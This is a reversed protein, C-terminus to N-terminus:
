KKGFPYRQLTKRWYQVAQHERMKKRRPDYPGALTNWVATIKVRAATGALRVLSGPINTYKTTFRGFSHDPRSTGFPTPMPDSYTTTSFHFANRQAHVQHRCFNSQLRFNWISQMERATPRLYISISSPNLSPSIYQGISNKSRHFSISPLPFQKQYKQTGKSHRMGQGTTCVEPRWRSMRRAASNGATMKRASVRRPAAQVSQIAGGSRRSKLVVAASKAVFSVRQTRSGRKTTSETIYM